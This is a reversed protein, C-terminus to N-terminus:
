HAALRRARQPGCCHRLWRASCTPPAREEFAQARGVQTSQRQLAKSAAPKAPTVRHRVAARLVGREPRGKKQVRGFTQEHGMQSGRPARQAPWATPARAAAPRNSGKPGTRRCPHPGAPSVRWRATSLDTM